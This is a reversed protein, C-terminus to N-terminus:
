ITIKNSKKTISSIPTNLAVGLRIIQNEATLLNLGPQKRELCIDKSNTLNSHEKSLEGTHQIEDM